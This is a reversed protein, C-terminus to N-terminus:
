VRGSLQSSPLVALLAFGVAAQVAGVKVEWLHVQSMCALMAWPEVGFAGAQSPPPTATPTEMEFNSRAM